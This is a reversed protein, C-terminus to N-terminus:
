DTLKGPRSGSKCQLTKEGYYYILNDISFKPFFNKQDAFGKLISCCLLRKIPAKKSNFVKSTEGIDSHKQVWRGNGGLLPIQKLWFRMLHQNETFYLIEINGCIDHKCM